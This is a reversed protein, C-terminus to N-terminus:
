WTQFDWDEHKHISSTILTIQTELDADTTDIDVLNSPSNLFFNDYLAKMETYKSVDFLDGDKPDITYAWPQKHCYVTIAGLETMRRNLEFIKEMNTPRNFLRSYMYESAVWRDLIVDTEVQEMFQVIAETRYCLDIVPDWWKNEREIKFIPINLRTSLEKSISSKGSQDHGEFIFIKNSM